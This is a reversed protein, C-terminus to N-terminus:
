PNGSIVQKATMKVTFELDAADTAAAAIGATTDNANQTDGEDGLWRWYVEKKVEAGSGAEVRTAEM